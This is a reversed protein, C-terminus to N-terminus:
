SKKNRTKPLDKLNIRQNLKEHWVLDQEPPDGTIETKNLKFKAPEGKRHRLKKGGNTVIVVEQTERYIRSALVCEKPIKYFKLAEDLISKEKNDM